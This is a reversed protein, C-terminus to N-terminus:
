NKKGKQIILLNPHLPLVDQCSKVFERGMMECKEREQAVLMLAENLKQKEDLDRLEESKRQEMLERGYHFAALRQQWQAEKIKQRELRERENFFFNEQKEKAAEEIMQKEQLKLQEVQGLRAIQNVLLRRKSGECRRKWEEEAAKVRIDEILKEKEREVNENHQRTEMLNDLYGFVDRRFQEREGQEAKQQQKLESQIRDNIMQDIKLERELKEKRTQYNERIQLKLLLLIM